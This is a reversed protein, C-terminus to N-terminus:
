AQEICQCSYQRKNCNVCINQTKNCSKCGGDVLKSVSLWNIHFMGTCYRTVHEGILYRM